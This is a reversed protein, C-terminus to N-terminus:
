RLKQNKCLLLQTYVTCLQVLRSLTLIWLRDLAVQISSFFIHHSRDIFGFFYPSMSLNPIQTLLKMWSMDHHMTNSPQVRLESTLATPLDAFRTTDMFTQTRKSYCNKSRHRSSYPPPPSVQMGREVPWTHKTISAFFLRQLTKAM